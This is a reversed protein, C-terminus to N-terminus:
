KRTGDPKPYPELPQRQLRKANPYLKPAQKGQRKANEEMMMEQNGRTGPLTGPSTERTKDCDRGDDNGPETQNRTPNWPKDKYGKAKQEMMIEKNRRTGLLIGPSTERTKKANQEMMM